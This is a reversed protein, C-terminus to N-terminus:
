VDDREDLLDFYCNGCLYCGEDHELWERFRDRMWKPALKLKRLYGQHWGGSRAVPFDEKCRCCWAEPM